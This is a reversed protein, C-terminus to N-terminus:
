EEDSQAASETGGRSSSGNPRAGNLKLKIGSKVPQPTSVGSM